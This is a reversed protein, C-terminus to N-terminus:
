WETFYCRMRPSILHGREISLLEGGHLGCIAMAFLPLCGITKV